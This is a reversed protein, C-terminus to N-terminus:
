ISSRIEDQEIQWPDDQLIDNLQDVIEETGNNGTVDVVDADNSAVIDDDIVDNDINAGIDDDIVDNDINAM